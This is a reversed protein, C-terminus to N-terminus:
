VTKRKYIFNNLSEQEAASLKKGPAAATTKEATAKEATAKKAATSKEATTKEATTKEATAKEATAKEATAKEATAKKEAPINEAAKKFATLIGKKDSETLTYDKLMKSKSANKKAATVSKAAKKNTAM